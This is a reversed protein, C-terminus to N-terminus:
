LLFGVTGLSVVLIISILFLIFLKSGKPAFFVNMLFFNPWVMTDAILADDTVRYIELFSGPFFVTFKCIKIVATMEFVSIDFFVM